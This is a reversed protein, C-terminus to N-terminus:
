VAGGSGGGIGPEGDLKHTFRHDEGHLLLPDGCMEVIRSVTRAGVQQELEAVDLNTTMVVSRQEEYRRDIIAYLQELVWDTRKEAGLDDLHLLDVSTLRDFFALYGDEGTEADYTRRIEALLRPASYVAVSRVRDAALKSILMALSTKGTGVDGMLWLGEGADLREEISDCFSRVAAVAAASRPNRDMDSVPPRDFSVGRYRKPISSRMGRARARDNRRKRCDCSRADGDDNLIWGSGDCAGVSCTRRGVRDAQRGSPGSRDDGVPALGGAGGLPDRAPPLGERIGGLPGRDSNSEGSM